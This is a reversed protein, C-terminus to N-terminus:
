PHQTRLHQAIQLLTLDRSTPPDAPAGSLILDYRDAGTAVLTVDAAGQHACGKSCGSVHLVSGRPLSSSLTLAYVRVDAETRACGRRGVCARLRLRPDAPDVVFGARAVAQALEARAGPSVGCLKLRRRPLLKLRGDGYRGALDAVVRLGASDLAGFVVGLDFGVTAEPDESVVVPAGRGLVGAQELVAPAGARAVLAKMRRPRPSLREAQAIFSLTLAQLGALSDPASAAIQSGALRIVPVQEGQVVIDADVPEGATFAFGFKSPLWALADADQLWTELATALALLGPGCDGAILINRRREADPDVSALRAAAVAAAFRPASAESLGRVQLNARSTLDILGSGHQEALDAILRVDAASLGSVYPKVRAILGDRAAM